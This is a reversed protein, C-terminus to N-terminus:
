LAGGAPRRRRLRWAVGALAGGTVALALGVLWDVARGGADRTASPHAHMSQQRPPVGLRALVSTLRPSGRMWGTVELPRGFGAQGPPTYIVPGGKALPYLFQRIRGYQEGARPTVGPVTYVVTYRVGLAAAPPPARLRSPAPMAGGSGFLVIFLETRWALDSLASLQGPEGSGTVVLGHALGAGTIMARSPGKALAPTALTMVATLCMGAVVASVIILRRLM